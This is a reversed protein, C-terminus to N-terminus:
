WSGMGVWGGVEASVVFSYQGFPKVSQPQSYLCIHSMGNHIRRHNAPLATHNDENVRATGSRM